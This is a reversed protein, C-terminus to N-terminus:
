PKKVTVTYWEFIYGETGGDPFLYAFFLYKGEPLVKASFDQFPERKFGEGSSLIAAPVIEGEYPVFESGDYLYVGGSPVVVGLVLITREEVPPIEFDVHVKEWWELVGDDSAKGLSFMAKPLDQTPVWRIVEGVKFTVYRHSACLDDGSLLEDDHLDVECVDGGLTVVKVKEDRVKYCLVHEMYNSRVAGEVDFVGLGGIVCLTPDPFTTYDGGAYHYLYVRPPSYRLPDSGYLYTLIDKDSVSPLTTQWGYYNMVSYTEPEGYEFPHGLGLAHGLEHVVISLAIEFPFSDINSILFVAALAVYVSQLKGFADTVHIYYNDTIGAAGSDLCRDTGPVALATVYIGEEVLGGEAAAQGCDGSLFSLDRRGAYVLNVGAVGNWVDIALKLLGEMAESDRLDLWVPVKVGPKWRVSVGETRITYRYPIVMESLHEVAFGNKIVISHVKYETASVTRVNLAFLIAVLLLWLRLFGNM